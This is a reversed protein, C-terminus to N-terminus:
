GRQADSIKSQNGVERKFKLGAEVGDGTFGARTLGDDDACQIKNESFASIARQNAAAAIIARDFRNEVCFVKLRRELIEEFFISQLRAFIM